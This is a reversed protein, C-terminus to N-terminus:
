VHSQIELQSLELQDGGHDVVMPGHCTPCIYTLETLEPCAECDLCRFVAPVLEIRLAAGAAATGKKLAEFAFSLADPVVGSLVGVRMTLRTIAGGGARRLEACATELTCEMISAEHM